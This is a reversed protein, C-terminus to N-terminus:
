RRQLLTWASIAKANYENAIWLGNTTRAACTRLRGDNKSQFFLPAMEPNLDRHLKDGMDREASTPKNPHLWFLHVGKDTLVTPTAPPRWRISGGISTL